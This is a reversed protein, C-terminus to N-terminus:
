SPAEKLPALTVVALADAIVAPMEASISYRRVPSMGLIRSM